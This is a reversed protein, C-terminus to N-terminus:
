IDTDTKQVLIKLNVQWLLKLESFKTLGLWELIEQKNVASNM